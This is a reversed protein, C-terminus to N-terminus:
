SSSKSLTKRSIVKSVRLGKNSLVLLAIIEENRNLILRGQQNSFEKPISSYHCFVRCTGNKNPSLKLLPIIQNQLELSQSELALLVDRENCSLLGYAGKWRICTCAIDGIISENQLKENAIETSSIILNTQMVETWKYSESSATKLIEEWHEDRADHIVITRYGKQVLSNLNRTFDKDSSMIVFTVEKNNKFIDTEQQLRHVLKRDADERKESVWVLEIGVADLEKILKSSLKSKKPNFFATIRTNIGSGFLELSQLFSRLHQIAKIGGYNKPVSLNEIDWLVRVQKNYIESSVTNKDPLESEVVSLVAEEVKYLENYKNQMMMGFDIISFDEVFCLFFFSRICESNEDNSDDEIGNLEQFESIAIWYNLAELFKELNVQIEELYKVIYSEIISDFENFIPMYLIDIGLGSKDANYRSELFNQFRPSARLYFADLKKQLLKSHRLKSELIYPCYLEITQLSSPPEM